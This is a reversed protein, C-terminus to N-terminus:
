SEDDLFLKRNEKIVSDNVFNVKSYEFTTNRYKDFAISDMEIAEKIVLDWTLNDKLPIAWGVNQEKLDQWPTQDSIIVPVGNNISEVIVHGYNENLSPLLFFHFEQLKISIEQPNLIGSYNIRSDEDILVKCEEWYAEEEIPGFIEFQFNMSKPLKMLVNLIFLLNKKKSIRSVFIFRAEGSKKISVHSKIEPLASSINKAVFVNAKAGFVDVIESKEIDTSAHWTVNKFFKLKKVLNLFVKKKGSKLVLAGKGLMGRPAIIVRNVSLKNVIYVPLLTFKFSFLSNCYIIDPNIETLIEKLKQLPKTTNDLYIIKFNNEDLVENVNVNLITGDIDKNSTVVIIDLDFKLAQIINFVSKIPGGAKFAPYFWDIFIVVKQKM